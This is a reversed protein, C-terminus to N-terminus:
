AVTLDDAFYLHIIPIYQDPDLDLLDFALDEDPIGNEALTCGMDLVRAVADADTRKWTYSGAHSNHPLYRRQIEDLTEEACVELTTEQKTLMNFLKIKRTKATLYGKTYKRDRWWPKGFASSWDPTPMPPPCHLFEGMPCFPVELETEPDVYTRVNKTVPDFWHTLDTGAAEIMPQVLSGKNAEVLPTLDYVKQFISVWLDDARNHSAVEAPTFYRQEGAKARTKKGRYSAQIATASDKQQKAQRRSSKGKQAAAVKSAAAGQEKMEEVEARAKKGRQAAAMRSAALEQEADM